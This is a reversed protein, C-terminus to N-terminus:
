WKYTEMEKEPMMQKLVGDAGTDNFEAVWDM